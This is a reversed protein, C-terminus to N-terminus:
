NIGYALLAAAQGNKLMLEPVSIERLIEGEPSIKLITDELHAVRIPLYSSGGEIYRRGPIWFTGDQSRDISHHTMSRVRWLVKGCRDLKVTGRYDFNFVVSGDPLAMAGHIDVHWNSRPRMNDPKVFSDDEFIDLYRVPWRRAPSGDLRILRLENGGDFFGTVLTLGGATQETSLRTVGDGKHKSKQLFNDPRAGSLNGIDAILLSVSEQGATIVAHPFVRYKGVAYGYSFVLLGCAVVFLVKPLDVKNM